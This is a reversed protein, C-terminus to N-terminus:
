LLLNFKFCTFCNQSGHISMLLIQVLVSFIMGFPERPSWHAKPSGLFRPFGDDHTFLLSPGWFCTCLEKRAFALGVHLLQKWLVQLATQILSINKHIESVVFQKRRYLLKEKPWGRHKSFSSKSVPHARARAKQFAALSLRGGLLM